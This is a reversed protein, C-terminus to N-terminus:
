RVRRLRAYVDAGHAKAYGAVAVSAALIRRVRAGAYRVGVGGQAGHVIRHRLQYAQVLGDWDGVIGQLSEQDTRRVEKRWLRAYRGLGPVHVEKLVPIPRTGLCYIARRITWELDVAALLVAITATEPTLYREIARHRAAQTDAVLFKM